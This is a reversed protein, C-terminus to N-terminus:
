SNLIKRNAAKQYLSHEYLEEYSEFSSNKVVEKQIDNQFDKICNLRENNVVYEFWLYEDLTKISKFLKDKIIEKKALNKKNFSNNKIKEYHLLVEKQNKYPCKKFNKVYTHVFYVFSALYFLCFTYYLFNSAFIIDTELIVFTLLLIIIIACSSMISVFIFMGVYNLHEKIIESKTSHYEVENSFLNILISLNFIFIYLMIIPETIDFSVFNLYSFLSVSIIGFVINKLHIQNKTNASFSNHKKIEDNINKLNDNIEKLHGIELM